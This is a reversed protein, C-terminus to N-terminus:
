KTPLSSDPLSSSLSSQNTKADTNKSISTQTLKPKVPIRARRKVKGEQGNPDHSKLTKEHLEPAKNQDAGNLTSDNKKPQNENEFLEFPEVHSAVPFVTSNRHLILM